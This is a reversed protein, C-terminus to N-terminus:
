ARQQLANFRNGRAVRVTGSKEARWVVHLVRDRLAGKIVTRPSAAECATNRTLSM